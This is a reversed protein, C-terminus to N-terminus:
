PPTILLPTFYGMCLTILRVLEMSCTSDMSGSIMSSISEDALYTTVLFPEPM